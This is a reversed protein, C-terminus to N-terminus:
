PLPYRSADRPISLPPMRSGAGALGGRGAGARLDFDPNNELLVDHKQQAPVPPPRWRPNIPRQSISTFHSVESTTPSNPAEASDDTPKREGIAGPTLAPPLRTNGVASENPNAFRPDADEFYDTSPSRAHRQTSGYAHMPSPSHHAAPEAQAWGARPHNYSPTRSYLSSPSIPEPYGDASLAHPQSDVMVEHPLTNASDLRKPQPQMEIAQGAAEYDASVAMGIPGPSPQRHAGASPAPGRYDYEDELPATPRPGPSPGYGIPQPPERYGRGMASPHGGRGPGGPTPGRPGPGHYNGRGYGGRPGYGGRGRPAFGPPPPGRRSGMSGDSYQNRLRGDPPGPRMRPGPGQVPGHNEIHDPPSNYAMVDGRMNAYQGPPMAADSSPNRANLPARDDDSDHTTTRFTAFTPTVDSTPPSGTVVPEKVDVNLSEPQSLGGAAAAAAANQRNYFNEGSMEANEAIRRKRAKRSVLTRRMACTVVGCTVLLITAVLVIWGGWELHPVFLLIDVLFALLSVLLTPLLLILLALLYRPSHSPGHFHAAAALCLCILTLFAAIPHVILIASLSKRTSPPLNFESSSTNTPIINDDAYGVHISTCQDGKCYGFVGYDVNEFTALPISKVIPTSLVSILLLAFAILLLITLPTAPKLLM